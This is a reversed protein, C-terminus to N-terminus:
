ASSANEPIADSAALEGLWHLWFSNGEKCDSAKKMRETNILAVEDEWLVVRSYRVINRFDLNRWTHRMFKEIRQRVNRKNTNM